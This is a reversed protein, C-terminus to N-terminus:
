SSGILLSLVLTLARQDVCVLSWRGTVCTIVRMVCLARQRVNDRAYRACLAYRGNVCVLPFM